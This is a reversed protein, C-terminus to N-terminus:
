TCLVMELEYRLESSLGFQNLRIKFFQNKKFHNKPGLSFPSQENEIEISWVCKGLYRDLIECGKIFIHPQISISFSDGSPKPGLVM